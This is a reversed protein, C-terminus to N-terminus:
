IQGRPHLGNAPFVGQGIGRIWMAEVPAPASGQLSMHNHRTTVDNFGVHQTVTKSLSNPKNLNGVIRDAEHAETSMAWTTLIWEGKM